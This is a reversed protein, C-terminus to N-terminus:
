NKEAMIARWDGQKEIHILKLNENRNISEKVEEEKM